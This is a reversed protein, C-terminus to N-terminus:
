TLMELAVDPCVESSIHLFWVSTVQSLSKKLLVNKTEDDYCGAVFILRTYSANKDKM